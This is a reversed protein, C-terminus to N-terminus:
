RGTTIKDVVFHVLFQALVAVVLGILAYLVTNKASGVANADGSSTVYKLGGVIIMIVAAVGIVLSLINVIDGVLKRVGSEGGSGCDTSATGSSLTNLGACADGQLDAAFALPMAASLMASLIVTILATKKLFNM